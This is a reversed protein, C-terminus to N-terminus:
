LYLWQLCECWCWQHHHHYFTWMNHVIYCSSQFNSLVCNWPRRFITVIDMPEIVSPEPPLVEGFNPLVRLKRCLKTIYGVAGFQTSRDLKKRYFPLFVRFWSIPGLLKPFTTAGRYMQVVHLCYIHSGLDGLRALHPIIGGAEINAGGM